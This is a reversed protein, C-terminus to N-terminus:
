SLYNKSSFLGHEIVVPQVKGPTHPPPSVSTAGLVPNGM